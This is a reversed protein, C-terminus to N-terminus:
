ELLAFTPVSGSGITGKWDALEHSHNFKMARLWAAENELEDFYFCIIGMLYGYFAIFNIVFFVFDRYGEMKVTFAEQKLSEAIGELTEQRIKEEKEGDNKGSGRYLDL